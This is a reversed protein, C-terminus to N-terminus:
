DNGNKGSMQELATGVNARQLFSQTVIIVTGSLNVRMNHAPVVSAGL